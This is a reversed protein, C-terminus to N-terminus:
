ALLVTQKAPLAGSLSSFSALCLHILGLSMPDSGLVTVASVAQPVCFDLYVVASTGDESGMM